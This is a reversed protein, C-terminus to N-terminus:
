DIVGAQRLLARRELAPREREITAAHAAPFHQAMYEEHEIREQSTMAVSAPAAFPPLPAPIPPIEGGFLFASTEPSPAPRRVFLPDHRDSM